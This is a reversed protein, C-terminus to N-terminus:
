LLTGRADRIAQELRDCEAVIGACRERAAQRRRQMEAAVLVPNAKALAPEVPQHWNAWAHTVLDRVRDAPKM